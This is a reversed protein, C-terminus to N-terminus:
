SRHQAQAASVAASRATATTKAAVPAPAKSPTPQTTQPRPQLLKRLEEDSCFCGDDSQDNVLSIFADLGFGGTSGRDHCLLDFEQQWEQDSGNFGTQEAFPRMDRATLSGTGGSDLARFVAEILARRPDQWTVRLAANGPFSSQWFRVVAANHSEVTSGAHTHTWTSGRGKSSSGHSRRDAATGAAPQAARQGLLLM